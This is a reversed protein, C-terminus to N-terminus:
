DLYSFFLHQSTFQHESDTAMLNHGAKSMYKLTLPHLTSYWVASPAESCPVLSLALSHLYLRSKNQRAGSTKDLSLALSHLYLKSKNQRAGSTKDLSLALSHLYLKSKKQRACNTNYLYRVSHHCPYIHCVPIKIIGTLRSSGSIVTLRHYEHSKGSGHSTM